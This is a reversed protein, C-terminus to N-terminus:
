GTLSPPSGVPTSPNSSFSNNTHDPSYISALAKGLADGTQSSTPAGSQARNAMVSDTGNTTATCSATSYQNSGSSRHFSSMPPLSPNIDASSHSPYSRDSHGDPAQDGGQGLSNEGSQETQGPLWSLSSDPMFFPSPFGGSPPKSSPYGPSDRNYDATSASPAYVNLDEFFMISHKGYCFQIMPLTNHYQTCKM